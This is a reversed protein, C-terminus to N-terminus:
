NVERSKTADTALRAPQRGGAPCNAANRRRSSGPLCLANVATEISPRPDLDPLFSALYRARPTALELGGTEWPGGREALIVLVKELEGRM